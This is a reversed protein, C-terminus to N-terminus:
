RVTNRSIEPQIDKLKRLNPEYEKEGNQDILILKKKEEDFHLNIGSLDLSVM